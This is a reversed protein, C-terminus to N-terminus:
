QKGRYDPVTTAGPSPVAFPGIHPNRQFESLTPMSSPSMTPMTPSPTPSPAPPGGRARQVPNPTMTPMPYQKWFQSPPMPTHDSEPGFPPSQAWIAGGILLIAVLAILFKM